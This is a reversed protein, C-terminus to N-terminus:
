IEIDCVANKIGAVTQQDVIAPTMVLDVAKAGIDSDGHIRTRCEKVFVAIEGEVLRNEKAASSGVPWYGRIHISQGILASTLTYGTFYEAEREGGYFIRVCRGKPEYGVAVDYAKPGTVYAAAAAAAAHVQIADMLDLLVM